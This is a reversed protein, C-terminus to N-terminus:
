QQMLGIAVFYALGAAVSTLYLFFMIRVTLGGARV